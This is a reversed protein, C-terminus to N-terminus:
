AIKELIDQTRDYVKKLSDLSLYSMDRSIFRSLANQPVGVEKCIVSLKVYKKIEAFYERYFVKSKM